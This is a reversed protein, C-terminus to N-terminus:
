SLIIRHASFFGRIGVTANGIAVRIACWGHGPPAAPSLAHKGEPQNGGCASHSNEEDNSQEEIAGVGAYAGCLFFLHWFPGMVCKTTM